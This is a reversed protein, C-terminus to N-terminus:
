SRMDAESATIGDANIMRENTAKPFMTWISKRARLAPGAADVNKREPAPLSVPSVSSMGMQRTSSSAEAAATATNTAASVLSHLSLSDASARSTASSRHSTPSMPSSAILLSDASSSSSSNSSTTALSTQRRHILNNIRTLRNVEERSTTPILGGLVRAQHTPSLDKPSTQQPSLIAPVVTPSSAQSSSQRPERITPSTPTIPAEMIHDALLPLTPTLPDAISPSLVLLQPQATGSRMGSPQTTTPSVRSMDLRPRPRDHRSVRRTRTLGTARNPKQSSGVDVACTMWAFATNSVLPDRTPETIRRELNAPESGLRKLLQQSDTALECFSEAPSTSAPSASLMQKSSEEGPSQITGSATGQALASTKTEKQVDSILPRITTAIEETLGVPEQGAELAEIMLRCHADVMNQRRECVLDFWARDRAVDRMLKDVEFRFQPELEDMRHRNVWKLSQMEMAANAQFAKTEVDHKTVLDQNRSEQENQFQERLRRERTEKDQKGRLHMQIQLFLDDELDQQEQKFIEKEAEHRQQMMTTRRAINSEMSRMTEVNQREQQTTADELARTHQREADLHRSDLSRMQTQRVENWARRLVDNTEEISLRLTRQLEQELRAAELRREEEERLRLEELRALEAEERRREDARREEELQRQLVNARELEEVEAIIRAVEAAEADRVSEREGRNQAPISFEAAKEKYMNSQEVNLVSLITQLPVATLCCKPPFSAENQLATTILTTLCLRCYSHNCPLKSTETKVFEEFCSTCEVMSPTNEVPQQTDTAGSPQRAAKGKLLGFTFALLGHRSKPSTTRHGGSASESHFTDSNATDVTVNPSNSTNVGDKHDSVLPRSRSGSRGHGPKGSGRAQPAADVGENNRTQATLPGTTASASAPDVTLSWALIQRLKEPLGVDDVVNRLERPIECRIWDSQPQLGDRTRKFAEWTPPLIPQPNDTAEDSRRVM